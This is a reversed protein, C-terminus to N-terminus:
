MVDFVQKWHNHRKELFAICYRSSEKNNTFFLSLIARLFLMPVGVVIDASPKVEKGSQRSDM